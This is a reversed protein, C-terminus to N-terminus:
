SFHKIKRQLKYESVDQTKMDTGGHFWLALLVDNQELICAVIDGTCAPYEGSNKDWHAWEPVTHPPQTWVGPSSNFPNTNSSSPNTTSSRNNGNNDNWNSSGSTIGTDSTVTHM